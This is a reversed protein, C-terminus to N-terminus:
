VLPSGGPAAASTLLPPDGAERDPLGLAASRGPFGAGLTRAPPRGQLLRGVNELFRQAYVPPPVSSVGLALPGYWCNNCSVLTPPRCERAALRLAKVTAELRKGLTWEQLYDIVFCQPDADEFFLLLLSYDMIRHAAFFGADAALAPLLRDVALRALQHQVSCDALALALDVDKATPAPRDASTSRTLADSVVDGPGSQRQVWSGKLDVKLLVKGLCARSSLYEANQMVVLHITKAQARAPAMRIAHCGIICSIASSGSAARERLHAYYDELLGVLTRKETATIQKVVYRRDHSLLMKVGSGGAHNIPCLKCVSAQYAQRNIGLLGHIEGFVARGYDNYTASPFGPVAQFDDGQADGPVLIDCAAPLRLAIHFLAYEVATIYDRKISQLYSKQEQPRGVYADFIAIDCLVESDAKGDTQWARWLVLLQYWLALRVFPFVRDMSHQHQGILTIYKYWYVRRFVAYFYEEPQDVDWVGRALATTDALGQLCDELGPGEGSGSRSRRVCALVQEEIHGNVGAAVQSAIFLRLTRRFAPAAAVDAELEADTLHRFYAEMSFGRKNLERRWKAHAGMPPPGVWVGTSARFFNQLNHSGVAAVAATDWSSGAAPSDRRCCLDFRWYLVQVVVRYLVAGALLLHQTRGTLFALGWCVAFPLWTFLSVTVCRQGLDFASFDKQWSPYHQRCRRISLGSWLSMLLIAGGPVFLLAWTNFNLGPHGQAAIWCFHAASLGYIDPRWWWLAGCTGAYLLPLVHCRKGLGNTFPDYVQLLLDQGISFTYCLSVGVCCQAVVGFTPCGWGGGSPDSSRIRLFSSITVSLAFAGDCLISYLFFQAQPHRLIQPRRTLLGQAVPLAIWVVYAGCVVVGVVFYVWESRELLHLDLGTALARQLLLLPLYGVAVVTYHSAVFPATWTERWQTHFDQNSLRQVMRLVFRRQHPWLRARPVAGQVLREAAALAADLLPESVLDLHVLLTCLLM